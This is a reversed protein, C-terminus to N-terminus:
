QARSTYDLNNHSEFCLALFEPLSEALPQPPGSARLTPRNLMYVKGAHEGSLRSAILGQPSLSALPLYARVGNEWAMRGHDSLPLLHGNNLEITTWEIDYLDDTISRKVIKIPPSASFFCGIPGVSRGRRSFLVSRTVGGNINLLLARHSLPLRLKLRQEVSDLEEVGVHPWSGSVRFQQFCVGRPPRTIRMLWLPEIGEGTPLHQCEGEPLKGEHLGAAWKLEAQLYAGRLDDGREELWDAYILRPADDGPNAVIMRIFAEDETM